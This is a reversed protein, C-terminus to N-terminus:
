FMVLLGVEAMTILADDIKKWRIYLLAVLYTVNKSGLFIPQLGLSIVGVYLGQYGYKKYKELKKRSLIPQYTEKNNSVVIQVTTKSQKYVAVLKSQHILIISKIAHSLKSVDYFKYPNLSNLVISKQGNFQSQGNM